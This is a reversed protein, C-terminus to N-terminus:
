LEPNYRSPFEQVKRKPESNPSMKSLPYTIIGKKLNIKITEEEEEKNLKDMYM